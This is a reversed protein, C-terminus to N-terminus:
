QAFGGRGGAGPFAPPRPFQPGQPGTATGGPPPIYNLGPGKIPGNNPPPTSPAAPPPASSFPNPPPAGPMSPPMTTPPAGGGGLIRRLADLPDLPNAGATNGTLLSAPAPASAGFMRPMHLQLIQIAQQLPTVNGAGYGGNSAPAQSQTPNFSQGLGQNDMAMAM